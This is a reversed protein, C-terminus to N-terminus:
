RAATASGAEARVCLIRGYYLTHFDGSGYAARLIAPDLRDADVENRMLTRCEYAIASEAIIPARCDLGPAATMGGEKFKDVTRGSAKGCLAVASIMSLPMVNVTFDGNEELLKHTHRSPRVLVCFVPQSWIVGITGWGITMANPRGDAGQAVLLAGPKALATTTERLLSDWAVRTKEGM